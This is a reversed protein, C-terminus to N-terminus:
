RRLLQDGGGPAPTECRWPLQRVPESGRGAGWEASVVPICDYGVAVVRNGSFEALAALPALATPMAVDPLVVVSHWPVLLGATYGERRHAVRPPEYEPKHWDVVRAREAPSLARLGSGDDTWAAFTVDHKAAWLPM